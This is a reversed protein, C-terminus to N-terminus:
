IISRRKKPASNRLRSATARSIGLQKQLDSLLARKAKDDMKTLDVARFKVSVDKHLTLLRLLHKDLPSVPAIVDADGIPDLLRAPPKVGGTVPTPDGWHRTRARSM